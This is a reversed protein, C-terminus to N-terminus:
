VSLLRIWDVRGTIRDIVHDLEWVAVPELGQCAERTSSYMRGKQYLSYSGDVPNHIYAKPPWADEKSFFPTHAVRVMRADRFASKHIGVTFAVNQIMSEDFVASETVDAFFQMCGDHLVRGFAYSGDPLAIAYIDGVHQRSM